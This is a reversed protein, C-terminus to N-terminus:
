RRPEGTRLLNKRDREGQLQALFTVGTREGARVVLRQNQTIPRDNETWSASIDYSYRQSPDLPPSVFQREPGNENMKRDQIRVEAKDPVRINIIASTGSARVGAPLQSTITTIASPRTSLTATTEPTTVAPPMQPQAVVVMAPNTPITSFPSVLASQAYSSGVYPFTSYAGYVLPYNISTLYTPQSTLYAPTMNRYGFYYSGPYSMGGNYYGAGAAGPLQVMQQAPSAIPSLLVAAGALLIAAALYSRRFM